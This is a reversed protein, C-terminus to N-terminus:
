GGKSDLLAQEFQGLACAPRGASMIAAKAVPAVLKEAHAQETATWSVCAPNSM